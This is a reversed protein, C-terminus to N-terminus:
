QTCVTGRPTWHCYYTASAPHMSAFIGTSLATFALAVAFFKGAKTM